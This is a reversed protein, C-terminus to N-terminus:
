LRGECYETNNGKGQVRRQRWPTEQAILIAEQSSKRGKSDVERYGFM